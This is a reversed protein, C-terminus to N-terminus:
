ERVEEFRYAKGTRRTEQVAAQGDAVFQKRKEANRTQQEIAELMFAHPSKGTGEAISAVRDKLESPLKLTTPVSAM